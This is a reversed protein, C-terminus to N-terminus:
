DTLPMTSHYKGMRWQEIRVLQNKANYKYLKSKWLRSKKFAGDMVILDNENFVKNDGDPNFPVKQNRYLIPEYNPMVDENYCWKFQSGLSDVPLMCDDCYAVRSEVIGDENYMILEKVCGSYFYRMAQGITVGKVKQYQFELQPISDKASLSDYYFCVLGDERGDISHPRSQLLVGNRNYKTHVEISKGSTFIGEEMLQGNDYYKKYAGNPRNNTYNGELRVTEGDKFYKKWVGNKLGKVYTGEEVRGDIPYGREPFDAGYLIWYGEKKGDENLQNLTDAQAFGYVHFFM